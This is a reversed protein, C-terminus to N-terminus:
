QTGERRGEDERMWTRGRGEGEKRQTRGQKKERGEQRRM